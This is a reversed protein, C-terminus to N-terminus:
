HTLEKHDSKRLNTTSTSQKMKMMYIAVIAVQRAVLDAVAKLNRMSLRTVILYSTSSNTMLTRSILNLIVETLQTILNFGKRIKFNGQITQLPLAIVIQNIM